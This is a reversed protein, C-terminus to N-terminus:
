SMECCFSKERSDERLLCVIRMQLSLAIKPTL